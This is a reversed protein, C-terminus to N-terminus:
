GRRPRNAGLHGEAVLNQLHFREVIEVEFAGVYNQHAGAARQGLGPRRLDSGLAGDDDVIGASPAHVAFHRQHHGLHISGREVADLLADDRIGITGGRLEDDRELRQMVLGLDFAHHHRGILRHRARAFVRHVFQEALRARHEDGIRDLRHFEGLLDGEVDDRMDVDEHVVTVGLFFPLHRDLHLLDEIGVDLHVGGAHADRHEDAM